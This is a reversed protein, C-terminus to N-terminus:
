KGEVGLLPNWMVTGWSSWGRGGANIGANGAADYKEVNGAFYLIMTTGEGHRMADTSGKVGCPQSGTTGDSRGGFLLVTQKKKKCRDFPFFYYGSSVLGTVPYRKGIRIHNTYDVFNVGWCIRENMKYSHKQLTPNNEDGLTSGTGAWLPCQKSRTEGSDGWHDDIKDFWCYKPGPAGSDADTHPLYGNNNTVYSMMAVHIQKLNSICVAENAKFKASTIAALIMSGILGIIGIVVMLEILTFGRRHLSPIRTM